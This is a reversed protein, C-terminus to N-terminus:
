DNFCLSKIKRNDIVIEKVIGRWFTRKEEDTLTDYISQFDTEVIAKIKDVNIPKQSIQTTIKEIESKLKSDEILYEEDTKNGALYVVELRRRREQLKKLGADNARPTVLQQIDAEAIKDTVFANINELVLREVVGEGITRTHDCGRKRKPCRYLKYSHDNREFGTACLRYGCSPCRLLGSFIYVRGSRAQKVPRKALFAQHQEKTIYPECYNDIGRHTGTYFDSMIVRQWGPGNRAIGNDLMYKAAKMVNGTELLINWFEQVYPATEPDKVVRMIGQADRERKYGIPLSGDGFYAEKNKLKNAMVVKIRESTRDRENQAVALFITIAMQGNATTTDYNEYIARWEVHYKDLIDQVKFYEKVSRFWRDLKTFLVIDILGSQIDDLLRKLDPRKLPPKSGSIGEDTYHGVIKIRNKNCYDELDQQQARISYGKLAQEETSVREYLGARLLKDNKM